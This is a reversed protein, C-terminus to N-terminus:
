KACRQVAADMEELSGQRRTYARACKEMFRLFAANSLAGCLMSSAKLDHKKLDAVMQGTFAADRDKMYFYAVPVGLVKAFKNMTASRFGQLGNELRSVQAQSLNVKRALTVTTLGMRTRLQRVKEGIFKADMAVGGETRLECRM